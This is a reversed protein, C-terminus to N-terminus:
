PSVADSDSQGGPDAIGPPPTGYSADWRFLGGVLLRQLEIDTVSDDLYGLWIADNRESADADVIGLRRLVDEPKGATLRTALTTWRGLRNRVTAPSPLTDDSEALLTYRQLSPLEGLDDVLRALVDLCAAETWRRVYRRHAARPAYGASVLAARWGGFRTMVTPVSPLSSAAALRRYEGTTPARGLYDAVERIAAILDLETYVTDTASSSAFLMQRRQARDVPTAIEEWLRKVLTGTLGLRRAVISVNEGTRLASRIDEAREGAVALDEARRATRAVAAAVDTGRLIQQVRSGSLGVRSGIAQLTLGEERLRIIEGRRSAIPVASVPEADGGEDITGAPRAPGCRQDAPRQEAGGSAGDQTM